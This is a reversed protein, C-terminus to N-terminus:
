SIIEQDGDNISGPSVEVDDNRGDEELIKFTIKNSKNLLFVIIISSILSVFYVGATIFNYLSPWSSLSDNYIETYVPSGILQFVSQCMVAVSFIKGVEDPQATKSILSRVMPNVIGALFRLTAAFYIHYDESALGQVLSSNLCSILGMVILISEHVNLKRHLYYVGFFTGLATLTDRLSCFINYKELSWGFKLQLFLYIITMDALYAFIFLSTILIYLLILCREYHPRQRLASNAMERLQEMSSVQQEQRYIQIQAESMSEELVFITYGLSILLLGTAVLFIGVYGIAEYIYSSLFTGLITGASFIVEFFGLRTGRNHENTVDTLYCLFTTLMAAFGGTLILPVSTILIFWPSVSPVMCIVSIMAYQLAQAIMTAVLVPKRGNKDSWSGVFLAWLACLLGVPLQLYLSIDNAEPQVLKELQETYNDKSGTGLLACESQNYGLSVYCTRYIVFNTLISVQIFLGFVSCFTPIEILTKLNEFRLGAM